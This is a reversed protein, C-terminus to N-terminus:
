PVCAKNEFANKDCYMDDSSLIIVDPQPRFSNDISRSEIIRRYVKASMKAYRTRNPSEFDVYFLGFKSEYGARWEFNDMLSWAIYGRVDCGDEIADLVADLYGNYYDVRQYDVTGMSTGIGNETVWMPLNGYEKRIWNLLKRLGFPVIKLWSTHASAWSSDVTFIVASDHEFSPTKYNAANSESNKTVLRTTYTNLGFFDATGKIRNIEDATFVPLRSRSFNQDKSLANIRKKVYEPYDGTSSFIPHGFWGLHFQLAWESAESDDTSETAPEYWRSDLSIGIVGHQRSQFQERYLHVAEAHAKLLNHGCIYNAVGSFNVAPALGDRGYSNECIHWPENFTTWMRVRDGYTKFVVRAYEVFHHVIDATLWGGLDHLKQPLDFHYLTVMPTIGNELLENILNDYYEIGKLNIQNSLGTPMIRAWAISFRYIDVGLENVMEVDRRWQHYSDCAVDGNSRDAIMDPHHHTFHDWISEGKGDVNWAGEIQYSSTGVGFKFQNPFQRGEVSWWLLSATCFLVITQLTM